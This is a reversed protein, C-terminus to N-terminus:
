RGPGEGPLLLGSSQKHGPEAKVSRALDSGTSAETRAIFGAAHQQALRYLTAPGPRRRECHLAAGDPAQGPQRGIAHV